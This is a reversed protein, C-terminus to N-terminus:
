GRRWGTPGTTRRRARRRRGDIFKQLAAARNRKLARNAAVGEASIERNKTFTKRGLKVDDGFGFRWRVDTVRLSLDLAQCIPEELGPNAVIARRLWEIEPVIVRAEAKLRQDSASMAISWRVKQASGSTCGAGTNNPRKFEGNSAKPCSPELPPLWRHRM